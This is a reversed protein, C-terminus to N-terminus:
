SNENSQGGGQQHGAKLSARVAGYEGGWADTMKNRIEWLEPFFYQRLGEELLAVPRGKLSRAGRGISRSILEVHNYRFKRFLEDFEAMAEAVVYADGHHYETDYVKAITLDYKDLYHAKFSTWLGQYM